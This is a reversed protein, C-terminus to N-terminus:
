LLMWGGLLEPVAQRFVEDDLPLDRGSVVPAMTFRLPGVQPGGLMYTLTM